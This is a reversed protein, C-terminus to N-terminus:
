SVWDSFAQNALLHWKGGRKQLGRYGGKEFMGCTRTARTEVFYVVAVTQDQNFGVASLKIWREYGPYKQQFAVCAGKSMSKQEAKTFLDYHPLNFKRQLELVGTNRKLYDAFASDVAEKFQKGTLLVGETSPKGAADLGSDQFSLTEVRILVEEPPPDILRNLWHEEINPILASYVDYMAVDYPKPPPPVTSTDVLTKAGFAIVIAGVVGGMIGVFKLAKGRM